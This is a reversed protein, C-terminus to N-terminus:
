YLILSRFANPCPMGGGLFMKDTDSDPYPDTNPDLDTIRIVM